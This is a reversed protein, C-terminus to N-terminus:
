QSGSLDPDIGCAFRSCSYGSLGHRKRSYPCVQTDARKRLLTSPSETIIILYLLIAIFRYANMSLLSAVHCDM